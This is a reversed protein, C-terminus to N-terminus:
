WGQDEIVDIVYMTGDESLVGRVYIKLSGNTFLKLIEDTVPPMSQISRDKNYILFPPAAENSALPRQIKWTQIDTM